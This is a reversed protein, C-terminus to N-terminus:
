AKGNGILVQFMSYDEFRFIDKRYTLGLGKCFSDVASLVAPSPESRTEIVLEQWNGSCGWGRVVGHQDIIKALASQEVIWLGVKKKPIRRKNWLLQKLWKPVDYPRVTMKM